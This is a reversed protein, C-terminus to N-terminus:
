FNNNHRLHIVLIILSSNASRIVPIMSRIQLAAQLIQLLPGVPGVLKSLYTLFKRLKVLLNEMTSCTYIWM